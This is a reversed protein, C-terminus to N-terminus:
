YVAIGVSSSLGVVLVGVIAGVILGFLAADLTGVFNDQSSECVSQQVLKTGQRLKPTLRNTKSLRGSYKALPPRVRNQSPNLM